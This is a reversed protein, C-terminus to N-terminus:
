KCDELFRHLNALGRKMAAVESHSLTKTIEQIMMHRFRKHLRYVLYGADTLDLFVVRRDKTSRERMVYGKRELNNVCITVTGLTVLLHEAIETVTARSRNGIALIANMEKLSVDNFRSRRLANEEIIMANSLIDDLYYNTDINM